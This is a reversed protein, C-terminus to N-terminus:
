THSDQASTAKHLLIIRTNKFIARAIAVHQRESAFLELGREEMRTRYGNLFGM